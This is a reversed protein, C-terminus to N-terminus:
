LEFLVSNFGVNQSVEKLYYTTSWDEEVIKVVTYTEGVKLYEKAQAQDYGYGNEPYQFVVKKNKPYLITEM